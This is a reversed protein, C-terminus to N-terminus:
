TIHVFLTKKEESVALHSVLNNLHNRQSQLILLFYVYFCREHYEALYTSMSWLILKIENFHKVHKMWFPWKLFYSTRAMIYSVFQQISTLCCDSVWENYFQDDSSIFKRSISKLKVNFKPIMTTPSRMTM